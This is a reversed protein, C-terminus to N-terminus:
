VHRTVHDGEVLNSFGVAIREQTILESLEWLIGNAIRKYGSRMRRIVHGTRPPCIKGVYKFDRVGIQRNVTCSKYPTVIVNLLRKRKARRINVSNKPRFNRLVTSIPGLIPTKPSPTYINFKPKAVGFLCM